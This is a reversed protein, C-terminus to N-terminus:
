SSWLKLNDAFCDFIVELERWGRKREDIEQRRLQRLERGNYGLTQLFQHIFRLM